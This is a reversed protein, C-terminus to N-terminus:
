LTRHFERQAQRDPAPRADLIAQDFVVWSRMGPQATQAKKRMNVSPEDERIYRQGDGNVQIEWPPRAGPELRLTLTPPSPYNRDAVVMGVGCTYDEGGRVVGGAALGLEIGKGQHFCYPGQTPCTSM